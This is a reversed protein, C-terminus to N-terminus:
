HPRDGTMPLRITVAGGGLPPGNAVTITGHHAAVIAAVIAMGLGTGSDPGDSAAARRRAVDARRFRDFVHPVLSEPFGRGDDAVVIQAGDSGLDSLVVRVRTRAHRAANGVLNTLVQELRDRDANVLVDPGEVDLRAGPHGLREALEDALQRVNVARLRLPSEDRGFRALPLLDEALRGLRAVENHARALSDAIAAVDDATAATTAVDGLSLQALEIEGRLVSLPTRLEHSADDVFARDAAMTEHVRDLLTNLNRALAGIEDDGHPEPLRRSTDHVSLREAERTMATVPRLTAGVLLWAGLGALTVLTPILALLVLRERNRVAHLAQSSTGVVVIHDGQREARLRVDGHNAIVSSRSAAAVEDATLLAVQGPLISSQELQGDLTVVQTLPDAAIVQYAGAEVATSVDAFRHTLDTDIARNLRVSVDSAVLLTGVVLLVLSTAVAAVTLRARLSRM